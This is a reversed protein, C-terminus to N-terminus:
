ITPLALPIMRGPYTGCWGDIHWDNYAHLRWGSTKTRHVFYYKRLIASVVFNM